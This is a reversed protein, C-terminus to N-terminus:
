VTARTSEIVQSRLLRRAVVIRDAVVEKSVELIEAAQGYSFAQCDVLLIVERLALPIQTLAFLLHETTTAADSESFRSCWGARRGSKLRRMLIKFLFIRSDTRDRADFTRLARDYVDQVVTEADARDALHLATQFIANLHPLLRAEFKHDAASRM